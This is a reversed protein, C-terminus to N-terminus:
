DVRRFILASNHGGFAFSQSLASRICRRSGDAVFNLPEVASTINRSPHTRQDVISLVSVLAEIAGSAGMSHGLLSKTSNVLVDKGFVELIAKAEVSDNLVTGTGHANIYDVEAPQTGASRLVEQLLRQVHKGSQDMALMHGAESLQAFGIVEALVPAARRKAHEFEELVLFAAGGESFLFGRRQSDFPRNAQESPGDYQTLAGISDFGRFVSGSDDGLYESGGAVVTDLYGGRIARFAEGIATTGSACAQCISQSAGQAGFEISLSGAVSNPMALAISLTNFNSVVRWRQKVEELAALQESGLKPTSGLIHDVTALNRSDLHHAHAALTADIGAIGTGVYVGAREPEEFPISLRASTVAERSAARALLSAKNAQLRQVRNVGLTTWIDTPLPAWFRSKLSAYERWAAPIEAAIADGALAREWFAAASSALPNVCGLGTVVVRRPAREGQASM